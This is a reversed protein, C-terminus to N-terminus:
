PRAQGANLDARMENEKDAIELAIGVAEEVLDAPIVVIGDDDGVVLDGPSVCVGGCDIVTNESVVRMRGKATVPRSGAGYVPMGIERMEKVDRLLGDAVVGAVGKNRANLTLMEAWVTGLTSRNTTIVIVEGEKITALMNDVGTANPVDQPGHINAYTLTHARGVLFSNSIIPCIDERMTQERAGLIDIADSLLSTSLKERIVTFLEQDNKYIVITDRWANYYTQM